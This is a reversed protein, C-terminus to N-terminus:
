GEGLGRATIRVGHYPTGGFTMRAYIKGNKPVRVVSMDSVGGMVQDTFGKWEAGLASRETGFDDLPLCTDM